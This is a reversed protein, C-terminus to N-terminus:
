KVVLKSSKQVGEGTTVAILYVGSNLNQLGIQAEIAGSVKTFAQKQVERGQMDFVQINVDTTNQLTVRVTSSVEAPNPFVNMDFDSSGIVAQRTTSNVCFNTTESSGFSGGSALTTSGSTVTYSGNGFSCCIGDGYADTIVFDYCGDALDVNVNITSGDPQSAYTGGSAVVTSGSRIEWATEEPYNDFTISVNVATTGGGGGGGGGSTSVSINDVA